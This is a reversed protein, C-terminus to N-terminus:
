AIRRRYGRKHTRERHCIACVLDCVAIEAKLQAMSVYSSSMGLSINFKKKGTHDFEMAYYSFSKGCDKCPTNDKLERVYERKKRNRNAIYRRQKESEKRAGTETLRAQKKGAEKCTKCQSSYGSKKSSDRHFGTSVPKKIKCKSCARTLSEM